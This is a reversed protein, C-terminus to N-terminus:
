QHLLLVVLLHVIVHHEGAGNACHQDAEPQDMEPLRVTPLALGAQLHYWHLCTLAIVTRSYSLEVHSRLGDLCYTWPLVAPVVHHCASAMPVMM